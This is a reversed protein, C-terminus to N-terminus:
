GAAAQGGRHLSEQPEQEDQKSLMTKLVPYGIAILDTMGSGKGQVGPKSTTMRSAARRRNM